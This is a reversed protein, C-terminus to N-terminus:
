ATENILIKNLAQAILMRNLFYKWTGILELRNWVKENILDM